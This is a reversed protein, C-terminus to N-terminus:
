QYRASRAVIEARLLEPHRYVSPVLGVGIARRVAKAMRRQNVPRLGTDNSHRIRGMETVYEGMISVNRYHELPKMGLQDVVDRDGHRPRPKRRQKKWKSAEAGSLDHPAYVDGPRWRRPLQQELEKRGWGREAERVFADTQHQQRAASAERVTKNALDYAATTTRTSPPPATGRPPPRQPGNQARSTQLLEPPTNSHHSHHTAPQPHNNGHLAGTAAQQQQPQASSAFTRRCQQCITKPQIALRRFSQELSM